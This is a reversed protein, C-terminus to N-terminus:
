KGTIETESGNGDSMDSAGSEFAVDKSLTELTKDSFYDRPDVSLGNVTMEM